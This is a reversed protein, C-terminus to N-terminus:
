CSIQAQHVLTTIDRRMMTCKLWKPFNGNTKISKRWFYLTELGLTEKLFWGSKGKKNHQWSNKWEFFFSIHQVWRWCNKCYLDLIGFVGSPPIVVKSKMTFLHSPSLATKSNAHNWFGSTKLQNYGRSRCVFNKSIRWGDLRDRGSEM